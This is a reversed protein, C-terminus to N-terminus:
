FFCDISKAVGFPSGLIKGRGNKIRKPQPLLIPPRGAYAEAQKVLTEDMVRRDGLVVVLHGGMYFSMIPGYKKVWKELIFHPSTVQLYPICGLLPLGYPGPPLNRPITGYWLVMVIIMLVVVSGLLGTPLGMTLLLHNTLATAVM